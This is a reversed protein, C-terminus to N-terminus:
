GMPAPLLDYLGMGRVLETFRPDARITAYRPDTPVGCLVPSHIEYAQQQLKGDPRTVLYATAIIIPIVIIGFTWWIKAGVSNPSRWLDILAWVSLVLSIIALLGMLPTAASM